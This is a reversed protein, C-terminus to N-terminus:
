GCFAGYIEEVGNLLETKDVGQIYSHAAVAGAGIGEKVAGEEYLRLNKYKSDAFNFAPYFGNISGDIMSLLGSINSDKDKAIWETTILAINAFPESGSIAKIIACVAAMQTGGGLIIPKYKALETAAGAIFPQMTDGFKTMVDFPDNKDYSVSSLAKTVVDQKLRKVSPEGSSSAFYGDCEYGLAKVVAYATTTGAPVCESLIFYDSKDKISYGYEVGKEYLKKAEVNSGQLISEACFEGVKTNPCQPHITLGTDVFELGFPALKKAAMAILVPSPPGDPAKAIDPMSKPYGFYLVEMDLAPTYEIFGPLGAVTIGEIEATKTYGGALVFTCEGCFRDLFGLDGVIVEINKGMSKCSGMIKELSLDFIEAIYEKKHPVICGSCDQHIKGNFSKERGELSEIACKSYVTEDKKQYLGEDCFRFNPCACLYCNLEDMDHCKKNKAYLPCFDPENKVMNEYLFYELLAEPELGILKDIIEKHKKTHGELWSEYGM